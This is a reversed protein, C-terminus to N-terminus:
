YSCVITTAAAAAAAIIVSLDRLLLFFLLSFSSPLLSFLEVDAEKERHRTLTNSSGRTATIM